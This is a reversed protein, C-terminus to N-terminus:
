NKLYSIKKDQSVRARDELGGGKIGASCWWGGM